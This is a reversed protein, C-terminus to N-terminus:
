PFAMIQTSSPSLSCTGKITLECEQSWERTVYVHPMGPGGHLAILPPKSSTSLDGWIWYVTEGILATSPGKGPYSFSIKGSSTPQPCPRSLGPPPIPIHPKLDKLPMTSVYQHDVSRYASMQVFKHCAVQGRASQLGFCAQKCFPDRLQQKTDENLTLTSMLLESGFFHHFRYMYPSVSVVLRERDATIRGPWEIIAHLVEKISSLRSQWCVSASFAGTLYYFTLDKSM